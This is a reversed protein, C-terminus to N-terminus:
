RRNRRADDIRQQWQAALDRAMAQLVPLAVTLDRATQGAVRGTIRAEDGIRGAFGPDARALEALTADPPVDPAADPDIRRIADVLPGIPMALLAATTAELGEAMTEVMEPDDLAELANTADSQASAPAAIAALAFAAIALTNRM